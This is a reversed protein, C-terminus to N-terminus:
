IKRIMEATGDTSANDVVIIKQASLSQNLISELCEKLLGKRNYTVVVAIVKM